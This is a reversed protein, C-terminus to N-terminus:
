SWSSNLGTYCNSSVDISVMLRQAPFSWERCVLSCTRLADLASARVSADNVDDALADIVDLALEVPVRMPRSTAVDPVLPPLIATHKTDSNGLRSSTKEKNPHFLM